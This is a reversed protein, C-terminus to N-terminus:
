KLDELKGIYKLERIEDETFLRTYGGMNWCQFYLMVWFDDKPETSCTIYVGDDDAWLQGPKIEKDSMRKDVM